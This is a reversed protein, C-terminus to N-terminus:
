LYTSKNRDIFNNLDEIDLFFKRAGEPKVVPISGSWILERMSWLSRGLYEAAERLSYLRKQPLNPTRCLPKSETKPKSEEIPEFKNLRLNLKKSESTKM